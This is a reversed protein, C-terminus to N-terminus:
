RKVVVQAAQSTRGETRLMLVYVGEQLHAGLDVGTLPTLSPHEEVLMRRGTVDYLEIVARQGLLAQEVEIMVRDRAPNPFPHIAPTTAHEEVGVPGQLFAMIIADDGNGPVLGSRGCVLIRGDADVTFGGTEGGVTGISIMTESVVGGVGFAPDLAGDPGWKVIHTEDGGMGLALGSGDALMWSGSGQLAVASPCEYYSQVGNHGDADYRVGVLDILSGIINGQGVLFVEDNSGISVEHALDGDEFNLLLGNVGFSADMTGNAHLRMGWITAYITTDVRGQTALVIRGDSQLAIGRARSDLNTNGIFQPALGGSGFTQDLTGDPHLKVVLVETDGSDDTDSFGCVLISGDPAVAVDHAYSTNGFPAEVITYGGTGFAPDLSGDLQYRVVLISQVDTISPRGTGACIIRGDPLLAMGHYDGPRFWNTDPGLTWGDGSFSADLGGASTFRAVFPNTDGGYSAHGAAVIRGDAMVAIEKFQEFSGDVDVIVYGDTGFGPDRFIQALSNQSAVLAVLLTLSKMPPSETPGLERM